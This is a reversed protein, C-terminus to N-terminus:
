RIAMNQYLCLIDRTWTHIKSSFPMGLDDKVHPDVGADYLVIDPRVSDLLHPLTDDLVKLYERDGMHDRVGVDLDSPVKRFPFNSQCHLSFTFM